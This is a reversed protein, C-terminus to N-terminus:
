GNGFYTYVVVFLFTNDAVIEEGIEIAFGFLLFLYNMTINNNKIM